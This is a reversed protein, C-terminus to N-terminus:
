SAGCGLWLFSWEGFAYHIKCVTGVEAEATPDRNVVTIGLLSADQAVAFVVPDAANGVVPLWVNVECTEPAAMTGGDALATSLKGWYWGIGDGSPSQMKDLPAHTGLVRRVTEGTRKAANKSLLYGEAM